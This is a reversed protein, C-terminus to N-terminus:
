EVIEIAENEARSDKIRFSKVTDAGDKLSVIVYSIVPDYALRIDEASPRAPTAPHSHYVAALRVGNKRLERLVAFQEDPDLTFHEGSADMNRMPRCVSIVGNEEGLYGCAEIPADRRAHEIIETWITKSMRIM